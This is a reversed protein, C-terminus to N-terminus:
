TGIGFPIAAVISYTSMSIVYVYGNNGCVWAYGANLGIGTLNAAVPITHTVPFAGSLAIVSVTGDDTNTIWAETSSCAVFYPYAGVSVTAELTNTGYQLITATDDATNCVVVYSSNLAIGRPGNGVTITAVNTNTATDGQYIVSAGTGPAETGYLSGGGYPVANYLGNAGIGSIWTLSSTDLNGATGVYATEAGVSGAGIAIGGPLPSIGGGGLPTTVSAALTNTSTDIVGVVGTVGYAISVYALGSSPSIAIESPNFYNPSANPGIYIVDTLSYSVTSFVAVAGQFKSDIVGAECTVYASNNYFAVDWAYGTHPIPLINPAVTLMGTFVM